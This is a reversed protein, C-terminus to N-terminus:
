GATPDAVRGVFLVTGTPKHRILVPLLRVLFPTTVMSIIVVATLLNADEATMVGQAAATTFLVFGFEGGQSLLIGTKLATPHDDGFARVLIYVMLIKFLILTVVGGAIVGLNAAILPLDLSM